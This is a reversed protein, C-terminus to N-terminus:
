YTVSFFGVESGCLGRLNGFFDFSFIKEANM